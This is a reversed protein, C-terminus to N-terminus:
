LTGLHLLPRSGAITTQSPSGSSASLASWQSGEAGEMEVTRLRGVIEELAYRKRTM